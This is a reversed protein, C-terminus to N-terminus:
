GGQSAKGDKKRLLLFMLNMQRCTCSWAWVGLFALVPGVLSLYTAGQYQATRIVMVILCAAIFRLQTWFAAAQYEILTPYYGENKLYAIIPKDILALLVSQAVAMLGALMATASVATPLVDVALKDAGKAPFWAWAVLAAALGYLLPRVRGDLYKGLLAAASSRLRPYWGLPPLPSLNPSPAEDTM